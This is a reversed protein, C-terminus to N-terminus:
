ETGWIFILILFVNEQKKEQITIKYITHDEKWIKVKSKHNCSLFIFAFNLFINNIFYFSHTLNKRNKGILFVTSPRSVNKQLAIPHTGKFILIKNM